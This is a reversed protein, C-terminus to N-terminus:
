VQDTPPINADAEPVKIKKTSATLVTFEKILIKLNEIQSQAEPPLTKLLIKMKKEDAALIEAWKGLPELVARVKEFDYAFRKQLSKSIYGAEGFVRDYGEAEMYERIRSRLEDLRTDNARQSKLIEFYEQLLEKVQEDSPAPQQSSRYLHKWAPCVPKYSCWSCHPGPTPEFREGTALKNQIESVTKLVEATTAATAEATRTTTLKEGHKIYHLSLTIQEPKIHPWRKQLGLSYISLQLDRDVKEQAPMTRATKYDIIEYGDGRRDIRDIRGALVHTERRRSDEIIVEFPSELDVVSYNWPANKSYFNKLIREGERLYIEKEEPALEVKEANLWEERFHALVEDVTPFLPSQSFMFKLTSHLLLGFVAAKSKKEPIRDIERFKFKQPCLKYTELASYSTRMPFPYYSDM